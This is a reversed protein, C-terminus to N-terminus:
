IPGFDEHVRLVVYSGVQVSIIFKTTLQLVWLFWSSFLWFSYVSIFSFPILIKSYIYGALVFSHCRLAGLSNFFFVSFLMMMSFLFSTSLIVEKWVPLAPSVSVPAVGM